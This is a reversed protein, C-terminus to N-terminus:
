RYKEFKVIFAQRHSGILCFHRAAAPLLFVFLTKVAVLSSVFLDGLTSSQASTQTIAGDEWGVATLPTRRVTRSPTEAVTAARFILFLFYFLSLCLVLITEGRLCDVLLQNTVVSDTNSPVSNKQLVSLFDSLEM